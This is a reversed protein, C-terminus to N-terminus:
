CFWLPADDATFIRPVALAAWAPDLLFLWPFHRGYISRITLTPELGVDLHEDLVERVEPMADFTMALIPNQKDLYHRVWLAYAVVANLAKGRVTNIALTSPEM